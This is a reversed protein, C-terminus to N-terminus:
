RSHMLLRGFSLMRVRHPGADLQLLVRVFGPLDQVLGPCTRSVWPDGLGPYGHIGDLGPCSKSVWSDWSRFVWPDGLGPCKNIGDYNIPTWSKEEILFASPESAFGDLWPQGTAPKSYIKDYLIAAGEPRETLLRMIIKAQRQSDEQSIGKKQLEALYAQVPNGDPLPV